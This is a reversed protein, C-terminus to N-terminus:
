KIEVSGEKKLREQEIKEGEEAFVTDPETELDHEISERTQQAARKGEAIATQLAPKVRTSVVGSIDRTKSALNKVRSALNKVRENIQENRTGSPASVPEEAAEAKRAAVFHMGAAGIAAGLLLFKIASGFSPEAIITITEPYAERVEITEINNKAAM